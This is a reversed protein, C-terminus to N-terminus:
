SKLFLFINKKIYKIAKSINKEVGKVSISMKAAIEKYSLGYKRSLLFAEKQRTPLQSVLEEILLYIEAPDYEPCEEKCQLIHYELLGKMSAENMSRRMMNFIINRTMIFLLGDISGHEDLSNRKDWLKIFVQQVIDEREDLDRVYLSTFHYVKKWYKAYLREFSKEDGMKLLLIDRQESM